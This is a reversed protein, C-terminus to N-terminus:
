FLVKNLTEVPTGLLRRYLRGGKPLGERSIDTMNVERRETTTIITVKEVESKHSNREVKTKKDTNELNVFINLTNVGERMGTVAIKNRLCEKHTNFGVVKEADADLIFIWDYKSSVKSENSIM